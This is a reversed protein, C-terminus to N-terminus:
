VIVLTGLAQLILATNIIPMSLHILSAGFWLAVNFVGCSCGPSWTTYCAIEQHCYRLMDGSLFLHYLRPCVNYHSLSDPEDPCGIRCTHDHEATHFRRATCPGNCLIRLFCVLLRPRSACSVKKMRRLIDAVRHRSIPGLVRSVRCALPGAFDQTRMKDLNTAVKQKKNQPVEDLADNRDLRSIIDFANATNFAMSSFFFSM